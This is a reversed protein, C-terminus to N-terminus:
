GMTPAKPAPGRYAMNRQLDQSQTPATVTPMASKYFGPNMSVATSIISLGPLSKGEDRHGAQHLTNGYADKKPGSKIENLMDNIAMAFGSM